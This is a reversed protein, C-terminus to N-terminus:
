VIGWGSVPRQIPRRVTNLERERKGVIEDGGIRISGRDPVM